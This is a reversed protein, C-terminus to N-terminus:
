FEQEECSFASFFSYNLYFPSKQRRFFGAFDSHDARMDRHVRNLIITNSLFYIQSKWSDDFVNDRAIIRVTNRIM